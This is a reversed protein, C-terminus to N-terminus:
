KIYKIEASSNWTGLLPILCEGMGLRTIFDRVKYKDVCEIMLPNHYFLKYWQVKETFRSPNNLNLRFGMKIRYQIKIMVSDPVWELCKLIKMRSSQSKILKKYGDMM